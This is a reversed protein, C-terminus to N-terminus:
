AQCGYCEEYIMERMELNLLNFRDYAEKWVFGNRTNEIAELYDAESKDLEGLMYYANASYRLFEGKNYFKDKLSLVKDIIAEFEHNTKAKRSMVWLKGLEYDPLNRFLEGSNNLLTEVRNLDKLDYKAISLDRCFEFCDIALEMKKTSSKYLKLYNRMVKGAKYYEGKLVHYMIIIAIYDEELDTVLNFKKVYKDSQINFFLNLHKDLSEFDNKLLNSWLYEIDYGEKEIRYKGIEIKCKAFAKQKEEKAKLQKVGLQKNKNYSNWLEDRDILPMYKKVYKEFPTGLDKETVHIIQGDQAPVYMWSDGYAIRFIFEAHEGVPFKKGEFDTLRPTGFAIKPYILTALGWRMCYEEAERDPFSTIEDLLNSLVKEKGIKVSKNYYEYYLDFDFDTKDDLINRNVTFYPSLLETYIKMKQRHNWKGEEDTPLPDLILFEILQGCAEGCLLQSKMMSTSEKDVYRGIPNCYKESTEVCVFARNPPLQTEMVNVLKNWNDRTIYIDIDDDWPLFGGARVAGLATGGALYYVINNRNCIDDVEELLIYLKKQLNNM